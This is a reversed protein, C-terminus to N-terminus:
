FDFNGKVRKEELMIKKQWSGGGTHRSIVEEPGRIKGGGEGGSERKGHNVAIRGRRSRWISQSIEAGTATRMVFIIARCQSKEKGGRKEAVRRRKRSTKKTTKRM